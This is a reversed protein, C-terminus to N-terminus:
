LLSWDNFTEQQNSGAWCYNWISGVQVIPLSQSQGRRSLEAKTAFLLQNYHREENTLGGNFCSITQINKERMERKLDKLYQRLEPVTM